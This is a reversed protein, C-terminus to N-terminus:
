FKEKNIHRYYNMVFIQNGGIGLSYVSQLVRIKKM